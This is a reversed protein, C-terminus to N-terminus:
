SGLQSSPTRGITESFSLTPTGSMSRSWWEDPTLFTFIDSISNLETDGRNLSPKSRPLARVDTNVHQPDRLRWVQGNVSLWASLKDPAKGVPAPADEQDHEEGGEEEGKQQAEEEQEEQDDKNTHAGGGDQVDDDAAELDGPGDEGQRPPPPVYLVPPPRGDQYHKLKLDLPTGESDFELASLSVGAM